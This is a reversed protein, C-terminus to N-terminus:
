AGGNPKQSFLDGGPEDPGARDEQGLEDEQRFRELTAGLVAETRGTVRLRWADAGDPLTRYFPAEERSLYGVRVAEEGDHWVEVANPDHPNDDVSRLRLLTGLGIGAVVEPHGCYPLGVVTAQAGPLLDGSPDVSRRTSRLLDASDLPEVGGWTRPSLSRPAVLAAGADRVAKPMAGLRAGQTVDLDRRKVPVGALDNAWVLLVQDAFNVFATEFVHGFEQPQPADRRKEYDSLSWLGNRGVTLGLPAGHGIALFPPRESTMEDRYLGLDRELGLLGVVPPGFGEDRLMARLFPAALVPTAAVPNGIGLTRRYISRLTEPLPVGCHQFVAEIMDIEGERAPRLIGHPSEPERHESLAVHARILRELADLAAKRPKARPSPSADGIDLESFSM